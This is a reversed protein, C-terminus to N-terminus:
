EPRDVRTRGLRVIESLLVDLDHSFDVQRENPLVEQRRAMTHLHANGIKRASTSLFSMSERFSQASGEKSGVENFSGVGFLPPVHDIIARTLMAVAHLAGVQWCLNLEECMRILRTLDHNRQPLERLENIRGEDILARVTSRSQPAASAALRPQESAEARKARILEPTASLFASDSGLARVKWLVGEELRSLRHLTGERIRLRLLDAATFVVEGDGFQWATFLRSSLYQLVKEDTAPERDLWKLLRNSFCEIEFANTGSPTDPPMGHADLYEGIAAVAFFGLAVERSNQPSLGFSTTDAPFGRAFLVALRSDDGDPARQYTFFVGDASRDLIGYVGECV